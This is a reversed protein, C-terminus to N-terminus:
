IRWLSLGTTEDYVRALEPGVLEQLHLEAAFVTAEIVHGARTNGEEDAFVGHLHAFPKGDKLSINGVCSVLEHPNELSFSRYEHKEQDYYGLKARKVAGIVTLTASKIRKERALETISRVLESNHKLRTVIVRGLEHKLDKM